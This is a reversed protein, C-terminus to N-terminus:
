EAQATAEQRAVLQTKAVLLKAELDGVQMKLPGVEAAERQLDAITRDKAECTGKLTAVDTERTLLETRLRERSASEHQLDRKTQGLANEKVELQVQMARQAAVAEQARGQWAQGEAAAAELDARLQRVEKGRSELDVKMKTSDRALKSLAQHLQEKEAVEHDFRIQLTGLQAEKAVLQAQLESREAGAEQLRAKLDQLPKPSVAAEQLKAAQAEGQQLSHEIEATQFRRELDWLAKEKAQLQRLAAELEAKLSTTTMEALAHQADIDELQLPRERLLLETEELRQLATDLEPELKMLEAIKAEALKLQGQLDQVAREKTQLREAMTNMMTQVDQHGQNNFMDLQNQLRLIEEGKEQLMEAFHDNETQLRNLEVQMRTRPDTGIVQYPEARSKTMPYTSELPSVPARMPYSLRKRHRNDLSLVNYQNFEHQVVKDLEQLVEDHHTEDDPNGPSGAFSSRKHRNKLFHSM